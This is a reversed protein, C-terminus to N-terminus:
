ETLVRLQWESAANEPTLEFTVSLGTEGSIEQWDGGQNRIMWQLTYPVDEFGLLEATLTIIDGYHVVSGINDRINIMGAPRLDEVFEAELQAPQMYQSNVYGVMTEYQILMWDGETGLVVAHAGNPLQGLLESDASAAAYINLSGEGDLTVMAEQEALSEEPLPEEPLEEEVAPSLIEMYESYVYGVITEYQILLWNGETGLVVVSAGNPIQALLESDSSAAARVNLSGEASELAVVAEEEVPPEEPISEEPLIEEPLQEEPLQEEGADSTQGEQVPNKSLNVNPSVPDSFLVKASASTTALSLLVLAMLVAMMQKVKRNM